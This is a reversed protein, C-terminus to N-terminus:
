QKISNIEENFLVDLPIKSETVKIKSLQGNFNAKSSQDLFKYYNYDQEGVEREIEEKSADHNLKKQEEKTKVVFELKENVLREVQMEKISKPMINIKRREIPKKM